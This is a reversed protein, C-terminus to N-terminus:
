FLLFKRLSVVSSCASEVPTETLHGGVIPQAKPYGDHKIAYVMHVQINKFDLGPKFGVGKDMFSKYENVQSLETMEVDRWMTKGNAHGLEMAEIHYCHVQFGYVHVLKSLLMHLKAKNALHLLKM